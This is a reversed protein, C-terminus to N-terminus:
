RYHQSNSWGAEESGSGDCLSQVQWEGEGYIIVLVTCIPSLVWVVPPLVAVKQLTAAHGDKEAKGGEGEEKTRNKRCDEVCPLTRIGCLM